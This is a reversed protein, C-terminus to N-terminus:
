CDSRISNQNESEFQLFPVIQTGWLHYVLLWINAINKVLSTRLTSTAVLGSHKVVRICEFNAFLKCVADYSYPLM